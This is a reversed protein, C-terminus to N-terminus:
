VFDAIPNNSDVGSWNGELSALSATATPDDCEPECGSFVLILVALFGAFVHSYNRKM